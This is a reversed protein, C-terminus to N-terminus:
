QAVAADLTFAEAKVAAAAERIEKLSLTNCDAVTHEGRRVGGDQELVRGEGRKLADQSIQRDCHICIPNTRKM